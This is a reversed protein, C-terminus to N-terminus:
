LETKSRIPICRHVNATLLANSEEAIHSCSKSGRNIDTGIKLNNAFTLNDVSAVGFKVLHKDLKERGSAEVIEGNYNAYVAEGNSEIILINEPSNGTESDDGTEKGFALIAFLLFFIFPFIRNKNNNTNM